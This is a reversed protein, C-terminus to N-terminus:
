YHNSEYLRRVPVNLQYAIRSALSHTLKKTGKEVRNLHSTSIDLQHALEFQQMSRMERLRAINNM